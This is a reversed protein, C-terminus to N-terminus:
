SAAALSLGVLPHVPLSPHPCSTPPSSPVGFMAMFMAILQTGAVAIIFTWSPANEYFYGPLRTSFIVFHPCSSIQLYMITQLVGANPVTPDD